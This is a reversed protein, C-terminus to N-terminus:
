HPSDPNRLPLTVGLAQLQRATRPDGSAIWHAHLRLTEEHNMRSRRSGAAAILELMHAFSGTLGRYIHRNSAARESLYDYAASGM